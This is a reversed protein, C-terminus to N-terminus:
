GGVSALDWITVREAATVLLDSNPVFCMADVRGSGSLTVEKKGGAEDWIRIFSGCEEAAVLWKGNSSIAVKDFEAGEELKVASQGTNLEWVTVRDGNCGALRNGDETLSLSAIKYQGTDAQIRRLQQGTEVDWVRIYNGGTAIREGCPLAVVALIGSVALLAEGSFEHEWEKSTDIWQLCNGTEACWIAVQGGKGVAAVRRGSPTIAVSIRGFPCELAHIQRGTTGDWVIVMRDYLGGTVVRGGDSSIDASWVQSDHGRIPTSWFSRLWTSLSRCGTDEGDLVNLIRGSHADWVVATHFAHGTVIRAADDSVALSMVGNHDAYFEDFTKTPHLENMPEGDPFGPADRHLGPPLLFNLFPPPPEKARNYM